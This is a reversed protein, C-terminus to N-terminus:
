KTEAHSEEKCKQGTHDESFILYLLPIIIVFNFHFFRFDPGTLLLMTGFDYILMPFIMFARGLKGRGVNTVAAFMAILIIMGVCNTFSFLLSTDATECWFTLIRRLSQSGNQVLGLENPTCYPIDITSFGSLPDWVLQTLSIVARLSWYTSSLFAQVTYRLIAPAGEAEILGVLPLSSGFKLPNFNGLQFLLRWEEPTAISDLFAVAEPLLAERHHTYVASLVSMPLGLMEEQRLGAGGIGALKIVVGNLIWMAFLMLIGSLAVAKRHKKQFLFLLVYLPITLLIANHRFTTAFFCMTSFSLCNYWKDLWAGETEYIEVVQTFVVLVVITLASDKWPFMMMKATQPNLILYLWSLVLFWTPCGRRCLVQYLYGVALSFLLIQFFAFGAPQHFIQWPIWFSVWTQLVPHWNNYSGNLVQEFQSVCDPPFGGPQFAALWVFLYVFTLLTALFPFFRRFGGARSERPVM